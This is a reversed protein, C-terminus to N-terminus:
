KKGRPSVPAPIFKRVRVARYCGQSVAEKRMWEADKRNSSWAYTHWVYEYNSNTEIVWISKIAM